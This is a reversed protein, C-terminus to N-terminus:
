PLNKKKGQAKPVTGLRKTRKDYHWAWWLSVAAPDM